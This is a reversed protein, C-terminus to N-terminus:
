HIYGEPTPVAHEWNTTHMRPPSPLQHRSNIAARPRGREQFLWRGDTSSIANICPGPSATGSMRVEAEEVKVWLM